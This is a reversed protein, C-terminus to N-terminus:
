GREEREEEGEREEGRGGEWRKNILKLRKGFVVVEFVARPAGDVHCQNIALLLVDRM